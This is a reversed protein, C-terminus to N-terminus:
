REDADEGKVRGSDSYPTKHILVAEPYPFPSPHLQVLKTHM